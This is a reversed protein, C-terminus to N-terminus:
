IIKLYQLANIIIDLKEMILGIAESEKIEIMPWKLCSLVHHRMTKIRQKIKEEPSLLAAIFQQSYGCYKCTLLISGEDDMKNSIIDEHKIPKRIKM